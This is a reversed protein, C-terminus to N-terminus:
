GLDEKWNKEITETETEWKEREKEIERERERERKERREERRKRVKEGTLCHTALKVKAFNGEGIGKELDYYGISSPKQRALREATARAYLSQDQHSNERSHNYDSM